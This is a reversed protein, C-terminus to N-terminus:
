LRGGAWGPDSPDVVTREGIRGIARGRRAASTPRTWFPTFGDAFWRIFAPANLIMLAFIGPDPRAPRALRRIGSIIRRDRISEPRMRRRSPLLSTLAPVPSRDPGSVRIRRTAMAIWPSVGSGAVERGGPEQPKDGRPRDVARGGRHGEAGDGMGIGRPSSSPTGPSIQWVTAASAASRTRRSSSRRGRHGGGGPRGGRDASGIPEENAGDGRRPRARPGSPKIGDRQRNRQQSGGRASMSRSRRGAPRHARAGGEAWEGGPALGGRIRVIARRTGRRGAAIPGARAPPGHARDAGVGPGYM